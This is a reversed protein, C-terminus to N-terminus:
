RRAVAAALAVHVVLAISFSLAVIAEGSPAVHSLTLAAFLLAALAVTVGATMVASPNRGGRRGIALIWAGLWALVASGMWWVSVYWFGSGGGIADWKWSYLSLPRLVATDLVTFSVAGLLGILSAWAIGDVNRPRVWAGPLYSALVAGALVVLGRVAAEGTGDLARSLLVFAVVGAATLAGLLVGGGVITRVDAHEAAPEAASTM